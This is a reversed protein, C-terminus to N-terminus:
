EITTDLIFEFDEKSLKGSFFEGDEQGLLDKFLQKKENQLVLIKEEVSEKIIPRYVTVKNKQGIRHARDIAQNEVAPNWWPDMIFVYSAATLNLGVGGAKLSILFLKTDGNQFKNIEKQRQSVSYKGDIRSYTWKRKNFVKQIIDLYSTFQSFILAQHGEELIQEVQSCLFNIKTSHNEPDITEANKDNPQSLCSQRLRLIGRLIIGFRNSKPTVKIENQITVLLQNYFKKEEDDFDLIQNQEVKDPLDNLVQDKTRRLIFPKSSKRVVAKDKLFKNKRVQLLDGWLGPVCLDLINFFESIDNEVPTGTLCIKFNSNLNRIALSGISRINKLNQVEDMAIVEFEKQFFDSQYERKLIGYSTLVISKHDQEMRDPGHYISVELNSFKEFESKWNYLISVPCIILYKKDEQYISSLFSIVQLTKGLGMDDALCAGLKQQYLFHLWNVGMDQYPRLFSKEKLKIPAQPISELTSLTKIIREEEQTLEGIIGLRKLEVLEFIRARSFPILYQKKNNGSEKVVKATSIYRKLFQALKIQEDNLVFIKGDVESIGRELNANQIIAIDVDQFELSLDFWNRNTKERSFSIGQNWNSIDFEKFLIPLLDESNFFLKFERVHDYFFNKNIQFKLGQFSHSISKLITRGWTNFLHVIIQNIKKTELYHIQNDPTKYILEDSAQLLEILNEFLNKLPHSNLSNTNINSNTELSSVVKELFLIGDGKIKFGNLLGAQNDFTILKFLEPSYAEEGKEDKLTITLDLYNNRDTSPTVAIQPSVLPLSSTSVISDNAEILIFEKYKPQNFYSIFLDTTFNNRKLLKEICIKIPAPLVYSQGTEWDFLYLKEFISIFNNVRGGIHEHKIQYSFLSDEKNFFLTLILKGKFNEPSNMQVSGGGVLCYNLNTYTAKPSSNILKSPSKIITGFKEVGVGLHMPPRHEKNEGKLQYGVQESDESSDELLSLIFLAASHSCHEKENWEDCTCNTTIPTEGEINELRKKYVVKAEQNGKDHCLGTIILYRDVSGKKFSVSVLGQNLIALGHQITKVSFYSYAKQLIVDNINNSNLLM